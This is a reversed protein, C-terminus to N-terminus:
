PEGRASRFEITAMSHAPLTFTFEGESSRTVELPGPAVRDPTQPSNVANAADAALLRAREVAMGAARVGTTIARDFHRNM